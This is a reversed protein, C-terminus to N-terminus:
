ATRQSEEEALSSLRINCGVCVAEGIASALASSGDRAICPTMESREHPCVLDDSQIGTRRFIATKLSDARGCDAVSLSEM